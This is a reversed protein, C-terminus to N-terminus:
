PRVAFRVVEGTTRSPDVDVRACLDNLPCLRCNPEAHTCVQQGHRKFLWHLEYFSAAEWAAPAEDMLAAYAEAVDSHRGVLGLRKAVRHLHTDVVLARKNLTSFNLVAAATKWGVGPLGHLWHMAQEVPADALHDLSFGGTRIEILKLAAPVYVAKKEAHTVQGIVREIEASPAESLERWSPWRDVLRCFAQWSVADQTRGSIMSKVLQTMPDHRGDAQQPGLAAILRSRVKPLNSSVGLDFSLQM